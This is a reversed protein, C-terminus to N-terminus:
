ILNLKFVYKPLRDCNVSAVPFIISVRIWFWLVSKRVIFDDFNLFLFSKGFIFFLMEFNFFLPLFLAYLSLSLSLSLFQGCYKVETALTFPVVLCLSLLLVALLNFQVAEM